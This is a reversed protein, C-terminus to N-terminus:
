GDWRAGRRWSSSGRPFISFGRDIHIFGMYKGVRLHPTVEEIVRHLRNVETVSNVDCDLALGFQHISLGAGGVRKNYTPCRYGSSIPIPKGWRARIISFDDFLANFIDAGYDPPLSKCHPCEYEERSIYPAILWAM